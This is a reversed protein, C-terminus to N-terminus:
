APMHKEIMKINAQKDSDKSIYDVMTKYDKWGYVQFEHNDLASPLHPGKFGTNRIRIWLNKPGEPDPDM